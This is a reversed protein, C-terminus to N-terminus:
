GRKGRKVKVDRRVGYPGCDGEGQRAIIGSAM